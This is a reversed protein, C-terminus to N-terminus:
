PPVNSVLVREYLLSFVHGYSTQRPVVFTKLVAKHIHEFLQDEDHYDPSLHDVKGDLIVNM